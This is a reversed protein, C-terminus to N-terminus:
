ISKCANPASHSCRVQYKWSEIMALAAGALGLIWRIAYPLIFIGWWMSRGSLSGIGGLWSLVVMAAVGFAVLGVSWSLLKRHRSKGLWAGIAVLCVSPLILFSGELPDIAGVIMGLLGVIILIRSWIAPGNM